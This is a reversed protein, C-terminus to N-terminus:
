QRPPIHRVGETSLPFDDTRFPAVPLGDRSYLHCIPNDAWAYRVAVPRRVQPSSVVVTNGDLRADAWHFRGDEGCIAFGEIPSDPSNRRLPITLLETSKPQYKEPLPKVKLGSEAHLFHIRIRNGEIQMSQYVPSLYPIDRGYTQSLAIAALREGVVRKNRPHIDREEGADILVVRGTNPLALAQDQSERLEAWESEQPNGLRKRYNALQCFYFPLDGRDWQKRWDQIMLPFAVRYYAAGRRTNAEGQYWIFGRITSRKLPAIMGNYIFTSVHRAPLKHTSADQPDQQEFYEKLKDADERLITDQRIGEDSIWPEIPTNGWSSNIIGVPRNLEQWLTKGFYYGVAGHRAAKEPTTVVWGGRLFDDQPTQAVTMPVRFERLEPINAYELEQEAGTTMHLRQQMNSQGSAVWVEGVLVNQIEIRQSGEVILTHPGPGVNELDLAVKWEGAPTVEAEARRGGLSVVVKSQPKDWGWVATASSEQLVAHNSFLAHVTLDPSAWVFVPIMAFVFVGSLSKLDSYWRQLFCMRCLNGNSEYLGIASSWVANLALSFLCLTFTILQISKLRAFFGYKYTTM